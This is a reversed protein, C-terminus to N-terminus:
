GRGDWHGHGAADKTMGCDDALNKVILNAPEVGAHLHLWFNDFGDFAGQAQGALHLVSVRTRRRQVKSNIKNKIRITHPPCENAQKQSQQQGQEATSDSNPGIFGSCDWGSILGAAEPEDITDAVSSRARAESGARVGSRARARSSRRSRGGSATSCIAWLAPTMFDRLTRM